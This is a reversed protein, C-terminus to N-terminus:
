CKQIDILEFGSKSEELDYPFRSSFGFGTAELSNNRGSFSILAIKATFKGFFADLTQLGLFLGHM